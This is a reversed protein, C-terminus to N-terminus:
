FLNFNYQLEMFMSVARGDKTAPTFRIRRAARIAEETLGGPLSRVVLINEVRGFSTFVARLIVTGTIGAARGRDTYTPEPKQLVRVKTTVEWGPVIELEGSARSSSFMRMTQLQERWFKTESDIPALDLYTQLAETASAYAAVAVRASERRAMQEEATPGSASPVHVVMSAQASRDGEIALIAQSKLLYAPAFRPDERIATAAESQAETNRGFRLQVVGLVYHAQTDKSNLEIGRRAERAAEDNRGAAMLTYAWGTHAFGFDPQLKVAAEFSKRANKLDDDRLLALGLYYWARSDNKDQKVALRLAMIADKTNGQAYFRIGRDRDQASAASSQQARLTLSCSFLILVWITLQKINPRKLM